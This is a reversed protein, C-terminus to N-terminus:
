ALMGGTHVDTVAATRSALGDRDAPRHLRGRAIQRHLLAVSLRM